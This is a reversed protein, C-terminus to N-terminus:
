MFLFSGELLLLTKISMARFIKLRFHSFSYRCFLVTSRDRTSASFKKCTLDSIQLLTDCKNYKLEEMVLSLLYCQNSVSSFIDHISLNSIEFHRMITLFVSANCNIVYFWSSYKLSMKANRNTRWRSDIKFKNRFCLSFLLYLM